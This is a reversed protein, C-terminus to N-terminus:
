QMAAGIEDAKEKGCLCEVLKLSFQKAAGAGKATVIKGDVVVREPSIVAGELKEEWGPFCTATKGKLDGRAGLISPAACIAGIWIGKAICYDLCFQVRKSGGLNATGPMGGPLVVMELGKGATEKDSVDCHVTIGHAGTITKSGVGVSQVELGARRLIDLPTIAEIEEFGHAFFVYVM